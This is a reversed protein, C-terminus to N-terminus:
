SGDAPADRADRLAQAAAEAEAARKSSGTGRGLVRDGVCAEVVFTRAHPPGDDSVLRYQPSQKFRQQTWEQLLGKPNEQAAPGPTAGTLESFHKLFVARVGKLGGDLYVAGLVAEMADALNSERSRGGSNEEGKGLVLSAGLGLNAALQALTRTNCLASRMRTLDGEAADAHREFLLEAALLGLIADGLFELRQNTQRTTAGAPKENLASPHLLATELLALRRFKHGIRKELDRHPSSRFIMM